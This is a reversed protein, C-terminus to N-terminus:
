SNLHTFCASSHEPSVSAEVSASPVWAPLEIVFYEAMAALLPDYGNRVKSLRGWVDGEGVPLESQRLQETLAYFARASLRDNYLEPPRIHLVDTISRITATCMALTREAQFEDFGGAGAVRLACTDMVVAMAALWSHDSHQSRYYSLMPYSVHSELLEASWQEWAALLTDLRDMANRRAHNGILSSTSVPAGAREDLLIVHTERRSFLQYLVPLYTIVMTIFALGTGAEIIVLTKSLPADNASEEAGLTFIRVGSTYLYDPFDATRSREAIGFQLLSFAALLGCAWLALLLLIAFPGYISLLRERSQENKIHRAIAAWLGWTSQFYVPVFRLPRRVRGPVMLANFVDRLIFVTLVLGAIWAVTHVNGHCTCRPYWNSKPQLENSNTRV